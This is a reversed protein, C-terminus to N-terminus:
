RVIPSGCRICFRWASDLEKGCSSCRRVNSATNVRFIFEENGLRLIDGSQIETEAHANIRQDNIYTHNKSNLDVVYYSNERTVIDAHSRSVANNDSVFYDVYSKEKGLRFVPKNIGIEEETRLRFLVPYIVHKPEEQEDVNDVLLCTEESELLGTAEEELIGTELENLLGTEIDGEDNGVSEIMIGTECLDEMDGHSERMALVDPNGDLEKRLGKNSETDFGEADSHLATKQVTKRHINVQTSRLREQTRGPMAANEKEPEDHNGVAAERKHRGTMIGSLGANQKKVANVVSKDESAILKEIVNPDFRGQMRVFHIFRSVVEADVQKEPIYSHVVAEVFTLIECTNTEGELPVYLFQVEKTLDNIFVGHTNLVVNHMQLRNSEIKQVALVLQEMVFLFDRSTMPRKLREHLSIGVPGTYELLSGSIRKVKLFGRLYVRAFADLAQDDIKEGIATKARVTLRCDKAKVKYRM